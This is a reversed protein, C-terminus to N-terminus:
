RTISHIHSQPRFHSIIRISRIAKCELDRKNSREFRKFAHSTRLFIIGILIKRNNGQYLLEHPISVPGPYSTPISM